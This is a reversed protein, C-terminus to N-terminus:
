CHEMVEEATLFKNVNLYQNEKKKEKSYPSWLIIIVIIPVTLIWCYIVGSFIRNEVILAIVMYIATWMNISTLVSYYTRVDLNNFPRLIHITYFTLLGGVFFACISIIGSDSDDLFNYTIVLLTKYLILSVCYFNNIKSTPKKQDHIGDFYLAGFLLSTFVLIFVIIIGSIVHLFYTNQWCEM